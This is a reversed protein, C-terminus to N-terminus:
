ARARSWARAHTAVRQVDAATLFVRVAAVLRAREVDISGPFADGPRRHLAGPHAASVLVEAHSDAPRRPLRSSQGRREVFADIWQPCEGGDVDFPRLRIGEVGALGDRVVPLDPPPPPVRTSASLQALGVAAQINTLKFNHGLSM